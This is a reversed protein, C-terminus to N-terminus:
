TSFGSAGKGGYMTGEPPDSSRNNRFISWNLLAAFGVWVLYPILLDAAFPDVPQFAKRTQLITIFLAVIDILALFPKKWGFFIIPWLLNLVMQLAWVSLPGSQAAIGGQRWVLWASYGIVAYLISWVGGFVADPPNWSPKRLNRYWDTTRPNSQSVM